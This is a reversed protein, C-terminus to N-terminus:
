KKDKVRRAKKSRKKKKGKVLIDKLSNMIEIYGVAAIGFVFNPFIGSSKFFWFYGVAGLGFIGVMMVLLDKWLTDMYHFLYAACLIIFLNILPSVWWQTRRPQLGKLLTHIANVHIFMGAMDGVPTSLVDGREPDSNGIIVIKNKFRQPTLNEIPYVRINGEKSGKICDQPILRFRIRQLYLDNEELPLLLKKKEKGTEIPLPYVDIKKKRQIVLSELNELEKEKGKHLAVALVPISWLIKYDEYEQFVKWHRVV